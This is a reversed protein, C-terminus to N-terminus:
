MSCWRPWVCVKSSAKGCASIKSARSHSSHGPARRRSFSLTGARMPRAAQRSSPNQKCMPM